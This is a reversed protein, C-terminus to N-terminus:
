QVYGVAVHHVIQLYALIVDIKKYQFWYRRILGPGSTMIYIDIKSNFKFFFLKRDVQPDERSLGFCFSFCLFFTLVALCRLSM